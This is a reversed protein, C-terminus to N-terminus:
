DVDNYDCKVDRKKGTPSQAMFMEFKNDVDNDTYIETYDVCFVRDFNFIRMAKGSNISENIVTIEVDRYVDSKLKSWEILKHLVLCNRDTIKGAITFEARVKPDREESDDQISNFKYTFTDVIPNGDEDELIIDTGIKVKYTM